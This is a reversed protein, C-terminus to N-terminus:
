GIWGIASLILVWLFITVVSLVSTTVVIQGALSADAGMAKAMPFSSVATPVATLALATAVVTKDFGLAKVTLVSLLPLFFLKILAVLTLERRYSVADALKLGGGLMVLAVPTVLGAVSDVVGEAMVPLRLGSLQVLIGAVAGAIIPNTFISLILKGPKVRDGRLTELIIVSIVNTLPTLFAISLSALGAKDAGNIAVVVPLSFLLVNIRVIGQLMSGLVPKEKFFRPLILVACGAAFLILGSIVAIFGPNLMERLDTKYISNFVAFPFCFLFVIRNIENLTTDSLLRGRRMAAGSLLYFLIPFVATFAMSFKM